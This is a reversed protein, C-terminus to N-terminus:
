EVFSEFIRTFDYSQIFKSDGVNNFLTISGVSTVYRVPRVGEKLLDQLAITRVSGDKKSARIIIMDRTIGPEGIANVNSIFYIYENDTLLHQLTPNKPDAFVGPQQSMIVERGQGISELQGNSGTTMVRFYTGTVGGNRDVSPELALFWGSDGAIATILRYPQTSQPKILSYEYRKRDKDFIFAIVGTNVILTGDQSISIQFNQPNTYSYAEIVNSKEGSDPELSLESFKLGQNTITVVDLNSGDFPIGMVVTQGNAQGVEWKSWNDAIQLPIVDNKDKSTISLLRSSQGGFYEKNNTLGIIAGNPFGYTSQYQGIGNSIKKSQNPQNEWHVLSVQDTAGNYLAISTPSLPIINGVTSGTPGGKSVGEQLWKDALVYKIQPSIREKPIIRTDNLSRSPDQQQEQLDATVSTITQTVFNGAVGVGLVLLVGLGILTLCGCGDIRIFGLEPNKRNLIKKARESTVDLSM